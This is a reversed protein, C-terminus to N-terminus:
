MMSRPILNLVERYGYKVAVDVPTQGEENKQLLGEM